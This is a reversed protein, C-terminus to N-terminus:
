VKNPTLLKFKDVELRIGDPFDTDPVYARVIAMIDGYGVEATDFCLYYQHKEKGEETIVKEVLDAKSFFKTNQRWKLTIDFDDRAMDFGNSTIEILYKVKTGSFVIEGM